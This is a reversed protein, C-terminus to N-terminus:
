QEGDRCQRVMQRFRNASSPRPRRQDGSSTPRDDDGHQWSDTSLTDDTDDTGDTDPRHAAAAPSDARSFSTSRITVHQTIEPMNFRYGRSEPPTPARPSQVDCTESRNNSQNAVSAANTKVVKSQDSRSKAAKSQAQKAAVATSRDHTKSHTVHDCHTTTQLSHSAKMPARRSTVTSSSSARSAAPPTPRTNYSNIAKPM